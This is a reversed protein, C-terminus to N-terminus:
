TDRRERRRNASQREVEARMLAARREPQGDPRIPNPNRRRERAEDLDRARGYLVDALVFLGIATVGGAVAGRTAVIALGNIVMAGVLLWVGLAEVEPRPYPRWEVGAFACAGGILYALIWATDLPGELAYAVSATGLTERDLLATLAIPVCAFGLSRSLRARRRYLRANHPNLSETM